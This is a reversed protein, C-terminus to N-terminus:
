ARENMRGGLRYAKSVARVELHPALKGIRDIRRLLRSEGSVNPAKAWVECGLPTIKM